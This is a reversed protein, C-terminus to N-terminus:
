VEREYLQVRQLMRELPVPMVGSKRIRYNVLMAAVTYVTPFLCDEFPWRGLFIRFRNSVLGVSWENRIRQRRIDRNMQSRLGFHRSQNRKLPFVIHDGPGQFGTDGMACEESAFYTQPNRVPESINYIGRDHRSGELTIDLHIIVGFVDTWLLVSFCHFHHHGDYRKEQLDKDKPRFAKQKTGDVFAVCNEFGFVLGRMAIREEATPWRIAAHENRVLTDLLVNAVHRIYNSATGSSIGYLMSLQEVGIGGENGARMAHLFLFLMVPDPVARKRSHVADIEEASLELRPDLPRRLGEEAIEFLSEFEGISHGTVNNFYRPNHHELVSKFFLVAKGPSRVYQARSGSLSNGKGPGREDEDAVHSLSHEAGVGDSALMLNVFQTSDEELKAYAAFAVAAVATNQPESMESLQYHSRPM